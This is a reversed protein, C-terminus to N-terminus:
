FTFGVKLGLAVAHNDSMQARATDPTGTEPKGDGLDLYRVGMTVKMNDQTYVAALGIGKYGNTPALPSILPDGDPEYSVFVSGSWNDNFRRGVGLTYTTTDELAVLGGGSTAVLGEPDILFESWDVWRISGFLLTDAAIGTQADINVAQPTNVQTVSNMSAGSFPGLYPNTPFQEVTDFKHKVKSFYTIAVRLAIDPREYAAGVVYGLAWDDDFTVDYGSLVSYAAGALTVAGSAKSARVGGHISFNEDFKYRALATIGSSDVKARTGGLVPSGGDLATPYSIDAGYAQDYIVAFSWADNLEYKLAIGPLNHDGAVSGTDYSAVDTGSVSPKIIGFSLEAYNGKEFLIGIPQGSRDVGGAMATTATTGMLACLAWPITKM